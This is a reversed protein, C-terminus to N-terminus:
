RTIVNNFRILRKDDLSNLESYPLWEEDVVLGASHVDNIKNIIISCPHGNNRNINQFSIMENETKLILTNRMLKPVPHNYRQIHKNCLNTDNSEWDLCIECRRKLNKNLKMKKSIFEIGTNEIISVKEGRWGMNLIAYENNYKVYVRRFYDLKKFKNSGSECKVNIILSDSEYFRYFLNDGHFDYKKNSLTVVHPDGQACGGCINVANDSTDTNETTECVQSSIEIISDINNDANADTPIPIITSVM